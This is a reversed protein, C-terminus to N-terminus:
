LANLYDQMRSAADKQMQESVHGYVDLTFAVTAHGLNASVTKIDARQELALTAYTHRLDHFRTVPIGAKEACRKFNEYVTSKSLHTGFENTFVFGDTNEWRDSAMLRNKNQKTKVKRLITLINDAVMFSRAKGNKLPEFRYEGGRVREKQLQRYITITKKEFDICDWTLGLVEGQRMGTFMTVYLLDEFPNGSIASLLDKVHDGTVPHMEVRNMKPLTVADCVNTRIYGLKIAKDLAEHLVCNMNRISKPSLGAKEVTKEKGNCMKQIIQYPKSLKNYLRQVMPASLESLKKAGLGPKLHVRIQYKYQDLTTAKVDSNYDTIWIDLWQAVTLKSPETYIGQDIESTIAKLKRRVEDQSKGYVSKQLQKGTGPDVGLTYRAEWRKDSERYRITGDGKVGKSNKRKKPM